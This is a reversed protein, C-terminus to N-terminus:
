TPLKRGWFSPGGKVLDQIRVQWRFYFLCCVHMATKLLNVLILYMNLISTCNYNKVSWGRFSTQLVKILCCQVTVRFSCHTVKIRPGIRPPSLTRTPTLTHPSLTHLPNVFIPRPCFTLIEMPFRPVHTCLVWLMCKWLSEFQFCSCTGLNQIFESCNSIIGYCNQCCKWVM